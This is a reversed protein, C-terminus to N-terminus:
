YWSNKNKVVGFIWCGMFRHNRAESIWSATWIEPCWWMFTLGDRGPCFPRWKSSNAEYKRGYLHVECLTLFGRRPLTIYVYRGITAGPCKVRSIAAAPPIGPFQGCLRFQETALQSSTVPFSTNSVLVRFDSLREPIVFTSQKFLQTISFMAYQSCIICKISVNSCVQVELETSSTSM